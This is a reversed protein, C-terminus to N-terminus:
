KKAAGLEAIRAQIRARVLDLGAKMEPGAQAGMQDMRDLMRQLQAPDQSSKIRTLMGKVMGKSQEPLGALAPDEPESGAKRTWTAVARNERTFYRKVMAQVDASTVQQVAADIRDADRWEGRADAVGYRIMLAFDSDLQRYTSTLYRNKVASLEEAPVGNRAVSDLEAYIARELEDPQHGDKAEAQISFAGEYKRSDQNARASTAAGGGLVLHKQLRGTPGNLMAELVTLAPVDKHVQAVTHWQIEVTPNTEAEGYVRKELVQPPETTIMEPAPRSGRPISGLYKEAYAMAQAPDFDGVLVATLNQPAYFLSYFDDAQAKSINAVDSPWGITEWSYPSADWFTSNFSEEYKGTPTSELSRRREEYVVDRESYFERFVRNKLRDSELWFWLELKNAPLTEFYYTMDENTFANIRSGGNKQLVLDFENKVMNKRQLAVLSDFVVELQKMRPTKSEPKTMDDIDGRRQAARLKSLEARMEDMVAEQQDILKADLEADRTGIVHSGKFMMHEFLHAIGTIGPRENASGVHAVWGGSITPSLHRPVLLVKMGNALVHEQVAPGTAIAAPTRSAAARAPAPMLSLTFVAPLLL